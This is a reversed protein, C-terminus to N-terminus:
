TKRKPRDSPRNAVDFVQQDWFQGSVFYYLICLLLLKVKIKYHYYYDNLM